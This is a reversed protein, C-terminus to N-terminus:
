KIADLGPQLWGLVSEAISPFQTTLLGILPGALFGVTKVWFESSLHGPRTNAIYSLTEDREMGAYVSIVASGILVLNAMMWLSIQTRPVFPYFSIAFCVGLFLFVMSMTMTRMRALINQIFAMYQFCVFEEAAQVAPNESLEMDFVNREREEPTAACNELSLSTTEKKWEPWLITNFVDATTDAFIERINVFDACDPRRVTQEWQPGNSLRSANESAFARGCRSADQVSLLDTLRSLRIVADLQQSFFLYQIRHLNGSVSWLSNADVARLKAFTRRLRLRSLETLLRKFERWTWFLRAAEAATLFFSVLLAANICVAFPHSEMSLLPVDRHFCVWSAAALALPLGVVELELSVPSAMNMIRKGMENSIRYKSKSLCRWGSEQTMLPQGAWRKRLQEVWGFTRNAGLLRPLTPKGCRLMANGAMAQWSWLYMGALLFLVPVLPSVGSTLHGMRYFIPVKNAPLMSRSFTVGSLLSLGALTALFAYTALRRADLYLVVAIALITLLALLLCAYFDWGETALDTFNPVTAAISLLSLFLMAAFASNVGLLLAQSSSPFHRFVSFLGTSSARRAGLTIGLAQYLLLLLSGGVCIKWSLPFKLLQLNHFSTQNPSLEYHASASTLVVLTSPPATQEPGRPDELRALPKPEQRLVAVPWYGDRGM